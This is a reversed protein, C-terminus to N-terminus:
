NRTTVARGAGNFNLVRAFDESIASLAKRDSVNRRVSDILVSFMVMAQEATIVQQLEVLRKRESETLKRRQELLRTVDAWAAYDALGRKILRDVDNLAVRMVNPDGTLQSAQWNDWADKVQRWLGGSEGTDVRKLVDTIRADLLAIEDRLELLRDDARAAQYTENLRAPIYKSYKGHKYQPLGM